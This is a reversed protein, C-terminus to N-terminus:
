SGQPQELSNRPQSYGGSKRRPTAVYRRSTAQQDGEEGHDLGPAAAGPSALEVSACLPRRALDAEPSQTTKRAPGPTRKTGV